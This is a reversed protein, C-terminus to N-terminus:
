VVKGESEKKRERKRKGKEEKRKEKELQSASQVVRERRRVLTRRGKRSKRGEKRAM